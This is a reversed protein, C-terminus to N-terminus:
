FQTWIGSHIDLADQKNVPKLTVSLKDIIPTYGGAHPDSPPSTGAIAPSKPHTQAKNSKIKILVPPGM